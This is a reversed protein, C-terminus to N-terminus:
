FTILGALIQEDYREREYEAHNEDELEGEPLRFDTVFISREDDTRSDTDTDRVLTAM